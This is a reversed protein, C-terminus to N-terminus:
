LNRSAGWRARSLLTNYYYNPPWSTGRYRANPLHGSRVLWPSYARFIDVSKTLCNNRYLNYRHRGALAARRANAPAATATEICRYKAYRWRGSRRHKFNNVMQATTGRRIFTAEPRGSM